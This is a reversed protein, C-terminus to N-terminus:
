HIPLLRQHQRARKRQVMPLSVAVHQDSQRLHRVLRVRLVALRDAGADAGADAIAYTQADTTANTSANTSANTTANPGANAGAVPLRGALPRAHHQAGYLGGVLVPGQEAALRRQQVLPVVSWDARQRPVAHVDPVRHVAGDAASDAGADAGALAAADPIADAIADAGADAGADASADASGADALQDPVHWGPRHPRQATHPVRWGRPMRRQRGSRVGGPVLLLHAAGDDGCEHLNRVRWVRRVRRGSRADAATNSAADAAADSVADATADAIADAAADAVADAIADAIADTAGNPTTPVPTPSPTPPAPTLPFPTPPPLRRCPTPPPTPPPTPASTVIQPCTGMHPVQIGNPASCITGSNQCVGVGAQGSSAQCWQCARPQTTAFVTCSECATYSSCLPGRADARADARADSATNAARADAAANAAADSGADAAADTEPTL